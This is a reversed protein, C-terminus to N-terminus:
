VMHTLRLSSQKQSFMQMMYFRKNNLYVLLTPQVTMIQKKGDLILDWSDLVFDYEKEQATGDLKAASVPAFAAMSLLFSACLLCIIFRKM